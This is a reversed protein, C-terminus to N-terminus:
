NQEEEINLLNLIKLTGPIYTQMTSLEFEPM